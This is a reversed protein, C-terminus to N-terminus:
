QRGNLEVTQLNITSLPHDQPLLTAFPARSQVLLVLKRSEMLLYRLAAFLDVGYHHRASVLDFHEIAIRSLRKESLTRHLIPLDEPEPPVSGPAGCAKLIEAVLGRRSVTAGSSLDVRGLDKIMETSLYEILERWKPNGTVVLNVSENRQLLFRHINDRAALWDPADARLDAGCSQLRLRWQDADKDNCLNVYLPNPTKIADPLNCVIRVMPIVCGMQFKSDRAIAKDMEHLCYRSMLYEPSLVLLCIEAMEQTTDMQGILARGATFRERDIYVEAGGARLCPVLRDWVWDGQAHCYSVFVTRGV